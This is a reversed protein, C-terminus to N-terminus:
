MVICDKDRDRSRGSYQGVGISNNTQQRTLPPTGHFHSSEQFASMRSPPSPVARPGPPYMPTSPGSTTPSRGDFSPHQPHGLPPLYPKGKAAEEYAPPPAEDSNPDLPRNVGQNRTNRPPIAPRSGERERSRQNNTVSNRNTTSEIVDSHRHSDDMRAEEEEQLQLAMAFDADAQQQQEQPSTPPILGLSPTSHQPGRQVYPSSHQGQQPESITDMNGVPRFDGSFFESNQGSVDVLSEWIVEDKDSYGADTVLTFLQGSDPHKYLTSFHDNRFLIAFAGPFLSDNIIDLGHKTLQNPHNSLFSKISSIDQLLQPEEATLGVRSLKDELEEERFQITQADEYTPASRAFATRAPDSRPALWGHVLPVAFAGYLRMNQTDEFTGPKRDNNLPLPLHLSSNRADMLNSPPIAPPALRPNATMGTHLLLLFRNLEDVDPLDTLGGGRGESTLEDMLSEIILGLSVQERTRLATGLASRSDSEAGLILANVLALLPCPGNQNQILMSSRRLTRSTPCIWNFHKISYTENRQARLKAIEADVVANPSKPPQPKPPLHDQLSLEKSAIGQTSTAIQDQVALQFGASRRLDGPSFAGTQPTAPLEKELGALVGSKMSGETTLGQIPPNENNSFGSQLSNIRTAGPDEMSVPILPPQHEDITQDFSSVSPLPRSTQSSVSTAPMQLEQENGQKQSANDLNLTSPHYSSSYESFPRDALSLNATM